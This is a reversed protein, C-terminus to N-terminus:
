RYLSCINGAVKQKFLASLFNVKFFPLTKALTTNAQQTHKTAPKGQYTELSAYDATASFSVLLALSITSPAFRNTM